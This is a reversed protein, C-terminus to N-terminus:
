KILRELLNLKSYVMTCAISLAISCFLFAVCHFITYKKHSRMQMMLLTMKADISMLRDMEDKDLGVDSEPTSMLHETEDSLHIEEM